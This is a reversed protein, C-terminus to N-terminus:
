QEGNRTQAEPLLEGSLRERELPLWIEICPWGIGCVLCLGSREAPRHTHLAQVLQEYQQVALLVDVQHRRHKAM